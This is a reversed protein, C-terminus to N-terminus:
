IFSKNEAKGEMEELKGVRIVVCVIDEINRMIYSTYKEVIDDLPLAPNKRSEKLVLEKVKKSITNIVEYVQDHNDISDTIDDRIKNSM